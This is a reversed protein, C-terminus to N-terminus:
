TTTSPSRSAAARGRHPPARRARALRAPHRHVLPRRRRGLDRGARRGLRHRRDRPRDRRRRVRRRDRRARRGRPHPRSGGHRVRRDPSRPRPRRRRDRRDPSGPHRHRRRAARDARVGYSIANPGRGGSVEGVPEILGARELRAVMQAATPKSLGSLEGLRNRTLSGHELLLALAARDNRERLWSPTGPAIDSM